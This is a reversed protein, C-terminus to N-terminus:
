SRREEWRKSFHADLRDFRRLLLTSAVNVVVAVFVAAFWFTPDQLLAKLKEM